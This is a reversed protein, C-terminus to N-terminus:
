GCAKAFLVITALIACLGITSLANAAQELSEAIQDVKVSAREVLQEVVQRIMDENSMENGQAIARVKRRGNIPSVSAKEQVDKQPGSETGDTHKSM